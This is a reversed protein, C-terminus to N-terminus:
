ARCAWLLEYQGEGWSLESGGEGVKEAGGEGSEDRGLVGRRGPLIRRRTLLVLAKLTEKPGEASGGANNDPLMAGAPPATPLASPSRRLHIVGLDGLCTLSAPTVNALATVLGAVYRWRAM